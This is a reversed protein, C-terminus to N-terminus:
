PKTACKLMCEKQPALAFYGKSDVERFDEAAVYVVRTLTVPYTEETRGPFVQSFVPCWNQHRIWVVLCMSMCSNSDWRQMLGRESPERWLITLALRVDEDLM